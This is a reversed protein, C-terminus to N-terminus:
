LNLTRFNKIRHFTLYNADHFNHAGGEADDYATRSVAIIDQGDFQWDVYQFGHKEKDAHELIISKVEWTTLDKSTCLALVNRTNGIYAAKNKEPIYNSLTYYLKTIADFHIAFKKGGGPFNIFDKDPNFSATKGDNSIHTIAAKEIGDKDYATRLINVIKGNPAVVVNGELWGGFNGNLYTPDFRLINSKEWSSAKLLDSGIPASMMFSGFMKGWGEIPGMADEMARWIRGDHEIIPTPACHYQGALLLGNSSDTPVTWNVGGDVSKRIVTNGYEKSTGFLYLGNQYMFLKAWFQGKVDAIKTWSKGKNKSNFVATIGQQRETGEPGFFDHSAVYDGNPLVTLSPSGIYLGSSAPSYDIVVGPPKLASSSNKKVM